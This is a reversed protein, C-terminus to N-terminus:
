HIHTGFLGLEQHLQSICKLLGPTDIPPPAEPKDGARDAASVSACCSFMILATTPIAGRSSQPLPAFLSSDSEQEGAGTIIKSGGLGCTATVPV